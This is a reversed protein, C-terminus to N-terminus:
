SSVVIDVVVPETGVWAVIVRDGAKIGRLKNPLSLEHSHAEITHSHEEEESTTLSVKGTKIKADSSKLHLSMMYDGRPIANGLSDVSLSLDANIKGLELSIGKNGSFVRKMQTDMLKGLEEINSM